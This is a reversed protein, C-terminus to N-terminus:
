VQKYGCAGRPLAPRSEPSSLQGSDKRRWRPLFTSRSGSSGPVRHRGTRRQGRMGSDRGEQCATDEDKAGCSLSGLVGGESVLCQHSCSQGPVGRWGWVSTGPRGLGSLSASCGPGQGAGRGSRGSVRGPGCRPAGGRSAPKWPRATCASPCGALGRENPRRNGPPAPTQEGLLLSQEAPEADGGVFARRGQTPLLGQLGAPPAETDMTKTGQFHDGSPLAMSLGGWSGGRCIVCTGRPASVLGPLVFHGSCVAPCVGLADPLSPDDCAWRGLWAAGLERAQCSQAGRVYGGLVSLGSDVHSRMTGALSSGM